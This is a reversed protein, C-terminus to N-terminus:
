LLVESHLQTKSSRQTTTPRSLRTELDSTEPNQCSIMNQGSLFSQEKLVPDPSDGEEDSLLYPSRSGLSLHHHHHHHHHHDM